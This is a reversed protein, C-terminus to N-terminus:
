YHSSLRFQVGAMNAEEHNLMGPQEWRQAKM